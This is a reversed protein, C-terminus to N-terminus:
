GQRITSWIQRLSPARGYILMGVRYLRGAAIGIAALAALNIVACLVLQWAPVDSLAIRVFMVFPSLLPIFSAVVIPTANPAELATMATIFAAIIPFILASSISGLDEPRSVLSGIAAYATSFQMLGVFLLFIFAPAVLPKIGDAALLVGGVGGAGGAGAAGGSHISTVAVILGVIVWAAMQILALTTGAFIKGYLLALPDIAAVLLEAIRNTKEEIVSTLTLQSNLIVILYLVILLAFGVIHALQAAAPTKFATGIGKVDVPVEVARRARAVTVHQELSVNLPVLMQALANADVSLPNTSYVTARLRGGATDLYIARGAQVATLDKELPPATTSKEAVVTYSPALLPRAAATLSPAGALLIRSQGVGVHSDIFAPLELLGAIGLVGIVLGIQFARSRLRRNVEALYVIWVDRV